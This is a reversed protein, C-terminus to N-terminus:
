RDPKADGGEGHETRLREFYRELDARARPPLDDGFKARLYPGFGPLGDGARYRALSSTRPRSGWPAPSGPSSTPTPGASSGANWGCSRRERCM